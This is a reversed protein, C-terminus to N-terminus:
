VTNSVFLKIEDDIGNDHSTIATAERSADMHKNVCIDEEEANRDQKCHETRFCMHLNRHVRESRVPFVSERVKDLEISKDVNNSRSGDSSFRKEAKIVIDPFKNATDTM